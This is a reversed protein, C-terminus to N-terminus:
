KGELAKVRQELMMNQMMAMNLMQGLQDVMQMQFVEIKAINQLDNVPSTEKAKAIREELETETVIGDQILKEIVTELFNSM